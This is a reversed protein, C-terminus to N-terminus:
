KMQSEQRKKLMGSRVLVTRYVHKCYQEDDCNYEFDPCTCTLKDLDVVHGEEGDSDIDTVVVRPEEIPEVRMEHAVSRVFRKAQHDDIYGEIM